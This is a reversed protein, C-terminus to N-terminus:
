DKNGYMISLKGDSGGARIYALHTAGEEREWTEVDGTAMYFGNATTVTGTADTLRIYVAQTHCKVRIQNGALLTSATTNGATVQVATMEHDDPDIIPLFSVTGM